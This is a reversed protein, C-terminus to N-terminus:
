IVTFYSAILKELLTDRVIMKRYDKLEFRDSLFILTDEPTYVVSAYLVSAIALRLTCMCIKNKMSVKRKLRFTQFADQLSPSNNRCDIFNSVSEM